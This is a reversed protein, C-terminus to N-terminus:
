IIDSKNIPRSQGPELQGLELKGLRIRKLRIVTYGLKGLMRRIQRNIGEKLILRASKNQSMVVKIGKVRQGGITMGKELKAIAEPSLTQDLIVFYEKESEYRPHTLYNALEGDNTLILLGSSDKDLRGVPYLRQSSKVLQLVSKGQSNSVSSIYGVPKHIMLYIKNLGLKVIKGNYEVQDNLEDIKTGLTKVIKGNVKIKGDTIFQEASRRSAVGADALFKQLRIM